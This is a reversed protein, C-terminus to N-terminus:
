GDSRRAWVLSEKSADDNVKRKPRPGPCVPRVKRTKQFNQSGASQFGFIVLFYFPWYRGREMAWPSSNGMTTPPVALRLRTFESVRGFDALSKTIRSSRTAVM